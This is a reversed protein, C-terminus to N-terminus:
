ALVLDGRLTLEFEAVGWELRACALMRAEVAASLLLLLLLLAAAASVSSLVVGVVVMLLRPKSKTPKVSARSLRVM